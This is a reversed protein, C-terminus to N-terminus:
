WAWALAWWANSAAASCTPGEICRVCSGPFCRSCRTSEDDCSMETLRRARRWCCTERVTLGAFVEGTAPVFSMGLDRRVRSSTTTVDVGDVMVTGGCASTLGFAARLTSSKGCGNHGILVVIEGPACACRWMVYSLANDM